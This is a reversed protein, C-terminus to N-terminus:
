AAAKAAEAEAKVADAEAKAADKMAQAVEAKTATLGGVSLIKDVNPDQEMAQAAIYDGMTEFQGIDAGKAVEITIEKTRKGVGCVVVCSPM